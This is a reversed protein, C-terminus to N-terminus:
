GVQASALRGGQSEMYLERVMFGVSVSVFSGPAASQTGRNLSYSLTAQHLELSAIKPKKSTIKSGQSGM